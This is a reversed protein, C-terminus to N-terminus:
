KVREDSQEREEIEREANQEREEKKSLKARREV